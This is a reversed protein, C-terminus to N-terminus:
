SGVGRSATIPTTTSHLPHVCSENVCTGPPNHVIGAVWRRAAHVSWPGSWSWCGRHTLAIYRWWRAGITRQPTTPDQPCVRTSSWVTDCVGCVPPDDDDVGSTPWCERTM